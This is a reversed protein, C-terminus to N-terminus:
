EGGGLYAEIVKPNNQIETPIGCINARDFLGEVPKGFHSTRRIVELAKTCTFM